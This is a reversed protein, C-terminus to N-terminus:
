AARYADTAATSASGAAAEHAALHLLADARGAERRHCRGSM